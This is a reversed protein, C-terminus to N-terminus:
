FFPLPSKSKINCFLDAIKQKVAIKPCGTYQKEDQSQLSHHGYKASKINVNDRQNTLGQVDIKFKLKTRVIGRCTGSPSVRIEYVIYMIYM